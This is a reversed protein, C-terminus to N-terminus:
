RKGVVVKLAWTSRSVCWFCHTLAVSPGACQHTVGVKVDEMGGFAEKELKDLEFPTVTTDNLEVWQGAAM